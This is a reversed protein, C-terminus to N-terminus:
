RVALRKQAGKLDRVSDRYGFGFTHTLAFAAVISDFLSTKQVPKMIEEKPIVIMYGIARFIAVRARAHCPQSLAAVAM